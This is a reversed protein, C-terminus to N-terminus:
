QPTAFMRHRPVRYIKQKPSLALSYLLLFGVGLLQERPCDEYSSTIPSSGCDIANGTAGCTSDMFWMRHQANVPIIRGRGKGKSKGKAGKNQVSVYMTGHGVLCDTGNCPPGHTWSWCPWPCTHTGSGTLTVMARTGPLVPHTTTTGNLSVLVRQDRLLVKVTGLQCAMDRWRGLGM